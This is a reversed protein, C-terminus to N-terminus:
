LAQGQDAIEGSRRFRHRSLPDCGQRRGKALKAKEPSGATGIVHAGLAKGWQCLILGVGGAAAQVLITDGKKVKFTRRLLYQATLGKLLMAAATEYSIAKPLKISARRMSM